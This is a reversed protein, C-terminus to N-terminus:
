SFDSFEPKAEFIKNRISDLIDKMGLYESKRHVTGKLIGEIQFVLLLMKIKTMAVGALDQCM